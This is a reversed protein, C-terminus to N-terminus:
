VVKVRIEGIGDIGGQLLDGREVPGVGAPTGTFILDGPRLEFLESLHQIIEPLAWILQNLNGDQRPEDNVDLWIRGDSPHGIVSAPHVPGIPASHEFAKGADWPRGAKKAEGQIDRRTMDLGVAYGWVLDLAKEEHVDTGGKGLAAVLEVEFHVNKSVPPYPFEAGEPLGARFLNDPSKQFFFPAERGPDHGMERAHEAYNRGVCYVRHVPFLDGSGDVPVATAPPQPIVFTM